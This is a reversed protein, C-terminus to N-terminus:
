SSGAGDSSAGRSNKSLCPRSAQPPPAEFTALRNLVARGCRRVRREFVDAGAGRAACRLPTRARAVRSSRATKEFADRESSRAAAFGMFDNASYQDHDWVTVQARSVRICADHDIRAVVVSGRPRRAIVHGDSFECDFDLREHWEPIM